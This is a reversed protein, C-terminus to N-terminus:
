NTWPLVAQSPLAVPPQDSAKGRRLIAPFGEPSPDLGNQSGGSVRDAFQLRAWGQRRPPRFILAEQLWAATKPAFSNTLCKKLAPDRTWFGEGEEIRRRASIQFHSMVVKFDVSRRPSKFLSKM